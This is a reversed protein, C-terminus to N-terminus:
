EITEVYRVLQQVQTATLSRTSGHVDFAGLSDVAFGNEGKGLAPHGPALIAEAVTHALGHRLLNAQTWVGRLSPTNIAPAGRVNGPVFQRAPDALNVKILLDLRRSEEVQNGRVALPDDFELCNTLDFCFPIFYDIPDLHINVEHDSVSPAIAELMKQPFTNVFRQTWDSASGHNLGDTYPHRTNSPDHCGTCGASQFLTQGQQIATVTDSDLQAAQKMQALPNPPLRLESVSYFDIFRSVVAPSFGTLQQVKTNAAARAVKIVADIQAQNSLVGLGASVPRCNRDNANGFQNNPDGIRTQPDSAPGEIEALEILECNTRAQAAFALSAYSGDGFSGNWFYSDTTALNHNPKVQHYATPATAGNAFGVGDTDLEDYHCTACSKRANNSFNTHYFFLEGREINTAPYAPQAYGLDVTSLKNGSRLDFAELTEGGWNGVYLRNNVEDLALGFPRIGTKFSRSKTVTFPSAGVNVTLEQVTDSGGEALYILTGANNRAITTPISGALVKQQSAYLPESSVDDTYYQGPQILQFDLQMLGNRLDEFNYSRSKDFLAGPHAAHQEGDLGKVFVPGAVIQAPQQDSAAPLGRDISTTPVYLLNGINVIDGAPANIAVRRTATANNSVEIRAVEGGKNNAVFVANKQESVTLRFPNNGVGLIEGIPKNAPTVATVSQIVDVPRNSLPDRVIDASYKLVSHRWRNAVYLYQKDPDQSAVNKPVFALDSCYYETKIEVPQGGKTLLTNSVPDIISIYNSYQNCVFILGAPHVALRQPRVGVKIRTLLQDGQVVAVENGPTMVDGGLPVFVHAQGSVSLVKVDSPNGRFPILQARQRDEARPILDV